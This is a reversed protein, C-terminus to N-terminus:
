RSSGSTTRTTRTEVWARVMCVEAAIAITQVMMTPIILLMILLDLFMSSGASCKVTSFNKSASSAPPLLVTVTATAHAIAPRTAPQMVVVPRADVSIVAITLIEPPRAIMASNRVMIQQMMRPIPTGVVAFKQM